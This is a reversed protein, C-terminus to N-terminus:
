LHTMQHVKGPFKITLVVLITSQLNKFRKIEVHALGFDAIRFGFLPPYSHRFYNLALQLCFSKFEGYDNATEIVENAVPQQSTGQVGQEPTAGLFRIDLHDLNGTRPLNGKSRLLQSLLSFIVGDNTESSYNATRGRMKFIHTGLNGLSYGCHAQLM